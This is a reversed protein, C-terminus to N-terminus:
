ELRDSKESAGRKTSFDVGNTSTFFPLLHSDSGLHLHSPTKEYILLIILFLGMIQEGPQWVGKPTTGSAQGLGLPNCKFQSGGEFAGIRDLM